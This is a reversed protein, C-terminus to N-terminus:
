KQVTLQLLKSIIAIQSNKKLCYAFCDSLTSTSEPTAPKGYKRKRNIVEKYKYNIILYILYM